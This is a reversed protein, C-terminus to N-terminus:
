MKSFLDIILYLYRKYFKKKNIETILLNIKFFHILDLQLSDKGWSFLSM